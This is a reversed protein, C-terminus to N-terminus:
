WPKLKWGLVFGIGVACLGFTLPNERAHATLRDLADQATHELTSLSPYEAARAMNTPFDSRLRDIM